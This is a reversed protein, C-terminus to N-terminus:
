QIKNKKFNYKITEFEENRNLVTEQGITGDRRTSLHKHNMPSQLAVRGHSSFLIFGSGEGPVGELQVSGDEKFTVYEGKTLTRLHVRDGSQEVLFVETETPEKPIARVIHDTSDASLYHKWQTKIYYAKGVKLRNAKHIKMSSRILDVSFYCNETLMKSLGIRGNALPILFNGNHARFGYLNHNLKIVIFTYEYQGVSKPIHFLGRKQHTVIGYSDVYLESDLSSVLLITKKDVKRVMWHETDRLDTSQTLNGRPQVSLYKGGASRLAIINGDQFKGM